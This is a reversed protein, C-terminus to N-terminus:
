VTHSTAPQQQPAKGGNYALHTTQEKQMEIGSNSLDKKLEAVKALEGKPMDSIMKEPAVRTASAEVVQATAGNQISADAKVHQKEEQTLGKIFNLVAEIFAILPQKEQTDKGSMETVKTKDPLTRVQASAAAASGNNDNPIAAPIINGVDKPANNNTKLGLTQPNPKIGEFKAELTEIAM